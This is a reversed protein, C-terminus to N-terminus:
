RCYNKEIVVQGAANFYFSIPTGASTNMNVCSRSGAGNLEGVSITTTAALGASVQFLSQPAKTGIGVKGSADIRLREIANTGFVLPAATGSTHILGASANGFQIHGLRNNPFGMTSGVAKPGYYQMLVSNPYTDYDWGELEITAQDGGYIAQDGRVDINAGTPGGWVYLRSNINSSSTGVSLNGDTAVYLATKKQNVNYLDFGASFTDTGGTRLQWAQNVMGKKLTIAPMKAEVHLSSLPSVTGVGVLGTDTV